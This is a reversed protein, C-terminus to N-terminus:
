EKIVELKAIELRDEPLIKISNSGKVIFDNIKKEYTRETQYLATEIGNIIMSGQKLEKGEAFTLKLTIDYDDDKIDEYDEDKVDFYYVPQFSKKMESTIKILDILYNGKDTKFGLQNEGVRLIEPLFEIATPAGCDPISSYVSHANIYINLRGVDGPMCDPTFKLVVRQVNNKETT